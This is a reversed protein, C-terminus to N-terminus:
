DQPIEPWKEWGGKVYSTNISFMLGDDTLAVVRDANSCEIIQKIKRKKAPQQEAEDYVLDFITPNKDDRYFGEADYVDFGGLEDFIARIKGDARVIAKSVKTGDVRKLPRTIDIPVGKEAM